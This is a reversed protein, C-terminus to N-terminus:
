PRPTGCNSCFKGSNTSQCQPCTWEAPAPKPTGCEACFKGTNTTNCQPCTWGGAPAAAAGAMAQPQAQQMQPQAQQVPPVPQGTAGAQQYLNSINGGANMAMGMGMFGQMAGNSNSAAKEMAGAQAAALVGAAMAPNSLAAGSQLQKIREQDEEPLTVSGLAVSVIRFGRLEIWKASLENNMADELEKNHTVIENPRIQLASLKGFAPQLASIFETRMQESLEDRRYEDSVNGCVNKYFLIPDEIKFSYVGSCRISVDIDLNIRQDVIRFPIPNPTGFKNDILEKTNFYYVRQDHATSGGYTFRKCFTKFSDKIGQGLGGSFVSPETSSDYTFEGPEACVDVIEGQDVIIMCQGDAVVIGSGNTIINDSGKTNSSRNGIVKQGKVMLVEKDIAECYFYEKWQDALVGGAAGLAAKILGM